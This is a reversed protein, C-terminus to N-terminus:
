TSCTFDEFVLYYFQYRMKTLTDNVKGGYLEKFAKVSAEEVEEPTAWYDSITEAIAQMSSSKTVLKFFSQKGKGYISSTSDCGSWAHIFLLHQKILSLPAQSERMSWGKKGRETYFKIDFLKEKWHYLLMVAVDTDDAVVTVESENAVELATSVIKTDADGTCVHVHHGGTTLKTELLSILSKKNETNSLFRDKAYPSENDEHIVIRRSSGNKTARRQHETSKISQTDDYGDFVIYSLGYNNNIYKRYEEAIEKFKMGKNWTVRHLLAGGDLVYKGTLKKNKIENKEPLIVKRLSAKDPKRMMHDKFISMPYNTMEYAFYEEVNEERQTVATLRVFLSTPNLHLSKDGPINVSETLDALSNLHMKRKIKAETFSVNNLSEQIALGIEEAKEANVNDEDKISVLGSSLSYLHEDEMNFPNRSEIWRYFAMHDNTDILMRKPSMEAHQDSSTVKIGSLSSMAEHVSASHNISWVWLNRVEDTFGRGHTLGGKCKLSRMLTQEIILDSWLGAWFRDSRRIAHHGDLFKQYLWPHKVPLETMEQLYMRTCRAYNIHGTAAFLNTMKAVAQLHLLWNSTREACIFEKIIDVYEIYQIWLAATRSSEKKQKCYSEIGERLKRLTYNSQLQVIEKDTLGVENADNYIIELPKLDINREEVVFEIIQSVLASQALLHCRLARAYAKGSLLHPVTNEAYVEEFLEQLGSGAMMNGISGMFSMLTHFGGLRCVINLDEIKIIGSAKQYLPQDFTICPTPIKLRAAEGIVFQLTSYICSENNPDLDIIPLFEISDKKFQEDKKKTASQMFGSWNTNCKRFLWSTKWLLDLTMEPAPAKVAASLIEKVEKIEKLKLTSLGTVSSGFFPTIQVNSESFGSFEKHKLRKVTTSTSSKRSAVVIGMGHFTGKGTLTKINHDANDGSWQSFESEEEPRKERASTIASEKFLKVEDSSISLGFQSLHNVLWKTAFSKDIDVGIGFPIPAIMSRPRSNQTIVQGISARKLPPSILHSLFTSLSDPVWSEAYEIDDMKSIDPYETKDFPTIRIDNKIIKAAAIIIDLPTQSEIKKFQNM